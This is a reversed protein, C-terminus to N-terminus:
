AKAFPNQQERTLSLRANNRLTNTEPLQVLRSRTRVVCSNACAALCAPEWGSAKRPIKFSGGRRGRGVGSSLLEGRRATTVAAPMNIGQLPRLSRRRSGTSQRGLPHGDGWPAGRAPLSAWSTEPAPGTEAPFAACGGVRGRRPRISAIRALRFTAAAAGGAGRGPWPPAGGPRGCPPRRRCAPTARPERWQAAAVPKKAQQEPRAGIRRGAPAMATLGAREDAASGKVPKPVGVDSSDGPRKRRRRPTPGRSGEDRLAAWGNCPTTRFRAGCAMAVDPLGAPFPAHNTGRLVNGLGAMLGRFGAEAAAPVGRTDRPALGALWDGEEDAAFTGRRVMGRGVNVGEPIVNGGVDVSV